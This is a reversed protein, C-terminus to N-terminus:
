ARHKGDWHNRADVAFEWLEMEGVVEGWGCDKYRCQLAVKGDRSILYFETDGGGLAALAQDIIQEM